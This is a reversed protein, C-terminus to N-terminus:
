TQDKKYFSLISKLAESNQQLKSSNNSLSKASAVNSHSIKSLSQLSDHIKVAMDKQKENALVIETIFESTHEIMPITKEIQKGSEEAATVNEQSLTNIENAAVSSMEALKRVEEAVVAFGKGSNGARAAEIAANLSLLNTQQAIENIVEVKNSVEAIHAIDKKLSVFVEEISKQSFKAMKETELSHEVTQKTAFSMEQSLASIDEVSSSLNVSDSALSKSINKLDGSTGLLKQALFDLEFVIEKQKQSLQFISSNLQDLDTKNLLSQEDIDLHLNGKSLANVNEFAETLPKKFYRNAFVVLVVSIIAAAPINIYNPYIHNFLFAFTSNLSILLLNIIWLVIVKAFVSAKKYKLFFAISFIAVIFFLVQNILLNTANEQKTLLMTSSTESSQAWVVEFTFFAIFFFLFMKHQQGKQLVHLFFKQLPNQAFMRNHKLTVKRRQPM